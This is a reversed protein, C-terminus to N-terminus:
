FLLKLIMYFFPSRVAHGSCWFACHCWHHRDFRQTQPNVHGKDGKFGSAECLENRCLLVRGNHIGARSDVNGVEEGSGELWWNLEISVYYIFLYPLLHFNEQCWLIFNFIVGYRQLGLLLLTSLGTFLVGAWVPVKFLINLAFATGIVVDFVFVVKLVFVFVLIHLSFTGICKVHEM